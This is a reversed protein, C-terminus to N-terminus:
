SSVSENLIEASFSSTLHFDKKSQSSKELQVEKLKKELDQLKQELDVERLLKRSCSTSDAEYSRDEQDFLHGRRLEQLTPPHSIQSAAERSISEQHQGM